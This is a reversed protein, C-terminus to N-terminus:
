ARFARHCVLLSVSLIAIGIAQHLSAMWTPVHMAIVGIGILVQILTLHLASTAAPRLYSPLIELRARLMLVTALILVVFAFWRHQFHVTAPNDLHNLLWPHLRWLGDPVLQGFMMPFTNSILGARLGAVLGGAFIQLGVAILLAVSLRRIRSSVRPQEPDPQGFAYGFALWLCCCLLLLATSLHLSLRLHDVHPQDVLGSQVMLWGLLGQLAFLLGVAAFAPLRPIPIAGRTIFLFLPVVFALGTIRGLLRHTYEMYYIFRFEDLKMGANVRIYEPTQQYKHFADTWAETGIPPLIGTVVNWEVISLGSRTLRVWGGFIVMFVILASVVFLWLAISKNKNLM